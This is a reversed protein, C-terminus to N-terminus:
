PRNKWRGLQPIQMRALKRMPWGYGQKKMAAEVIDQMQQVTFDKGIFEGNRYCLSCYTESKSGDKETGGGGPDMALPMGCSQCQKM